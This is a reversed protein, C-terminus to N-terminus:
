RKPAVATQIKPLSFRTGNDGIVLMRNSDDQLLRGKVIGKGEGLNFPFQRRESGKDQVPNMDILIMKMVESVSENMASRFLAAHDAGWLEISNKGGTGVSKSQYHMVNRYVLSPTEGGKTWMVVTAEADFNRFDATLYYNPIIALLAQGPALKQTLAVMEDQNMQRPTTVIEGVKIPYTALEQRVIQDFVTRYDADEISAYFPGMIKQSEMVRNNTIANDAMIFLLGGVAKKSLESPIVQAILEDQIIIVRANLEILKERQEPVLKVNIPQTACASLLLTLAVLAINRYLM